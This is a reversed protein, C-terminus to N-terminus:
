RGFSDYYEEANQEYRLLIKINQKEIDTLNEKVDSYVPMYWRYNEFYMRLQKNRFAFGHRAFISNRLIYIDAKTLNSVFDKDLLEMSSNKEFIKETTAFYEEDMYMEVEGEITDTLYEFERKKDTDFFAFDLGNSLDYVFRKKSLDFRRSGVKLSDPFFAEWYGKLISDNVSVNISFVGDTRGRKFEEVKFEIVGEKEEIVGKFPSLNGAVISHGFISDSKIEDISFTLRRTILHAWKENKYISDKQDGFLNAKFDGVWYGLLDDLSKVANSQTVEPKVFALEEFVEVDKNKPEKKVVEQCSIFLLLVLGLIKNM